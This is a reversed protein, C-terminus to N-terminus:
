LHISFPVAHDGMAPTAKEEYVITEKFHIYYSCFDLHVAKLKNLDGTTHQEM